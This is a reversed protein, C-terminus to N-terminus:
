HGCRRPVLAWSVPPCSVDQAVGPDTRTKDVTDMNNTHSHEHPMLTNSYRVQQDEDASSTAELREVFTVEIAAATSIDDPRDTNVEKQQRVLAELTNIMLEDYNERGARQLFREKTEPDIALRFFADTTIADWDSETNSSQSSSTTDTRDRSAASHTATSGNSYVEWILSQVQLWHLVEENPDDVKTIRVVRLERGRSDWVLSDSLCPLVLSDSAFM